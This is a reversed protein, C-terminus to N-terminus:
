GQRTNAVARRLRDWVALWAGDEPPMEILIRDGGAQDLARLTRYLQTAYHKASRVEADLGLIQVQMGEAQLEAARAQLQESAVLEAPTRPAYHSALAGSVRPSRVIAGFQLGPLLARVAQLDLMGPRLVRPPTQTLDLITSELGVQCAGGDLVRPLGAGFEDRVHQATTPSVHGFRNASPAALGGGFAHLVQLAMPHAPIRLGITQQGGTVLTSVRPHKHLIMTLPGPWFREALEWAASPLASAWLQLHEPAAIHVILPHDAPRGKLAFIKSVAAENAADAALGYVTETPLGVLGGARLESVTAALDQETLLWERGLAPPSDPM